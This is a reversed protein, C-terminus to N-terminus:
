SLFLHSIGAISYILFDAFRTFLVLANFLMTKTGHVNIEKVQQSAILSLLMQPNEEQPSIWKRAIGWMTLPPLFIKKLCLVWKFNLPDQLASKFYMKLNGIHCKGNQVNLDLSGKM